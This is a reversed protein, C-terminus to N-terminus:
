KQASEFIASFDLPLEQGCGKMQGQVNATGRLKCNEGLKV